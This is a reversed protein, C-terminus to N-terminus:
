SPGATALCCRPLARRPSAAFDPRHTRSFARPPQQRNSGSTVLVHFYCTNSCISPLREHCDACDTAYPCDSYAAGGGGDDCVGDSALPCENSCLGTGPQLEVYYFQSPLAPEPPSPPPPSLTCDVLPGAKCTASGTLWRCRRTNVRWRECDAENLAPCSKPTPLARLNPLVDM